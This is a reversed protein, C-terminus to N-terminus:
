LNQTLSGHLPRRSELSAVFADLDGQLKELVDIEANIDEIKTQIEKKRTKKVLRLHDPEGTGVLFSNDSTSGDEHLLIEIILQDGFHMPVAHAIRNNRMDASSKIRKQLEQWHSLFECDFDKICEEIVQLKIELGRIFPFILKAKSIEITFLATFVDELSDEVRQYETVCMGVAYYFKRSHTFFEEAKKLQDIETSTCPKNLKNIIKDIPKIAM